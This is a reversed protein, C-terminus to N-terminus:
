GKLKNAIRISNLWDLVNALDSKFGFHMRNPDKKIIKGGFRAAIERYDALEINAWQAIV